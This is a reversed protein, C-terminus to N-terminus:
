EPPPSPPGFFADAVRDSMGTIEMVIADRIGPLRRGLEDWSERTMRYKAPIESANERQAKEIMAWVKKGNHAFVFEIRTKRDLTEFDKPPDFPPDEGESLSRYFVRLPEELFPTEIDIHFLKDARSLLKLTLNEDAADGATTEAESM